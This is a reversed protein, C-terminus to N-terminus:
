SAAHLVAIAVVPIALNDLGRGLLAEAGTTALAALLATLALRGAPEHGFALSASLAVIFAVAFFTASGASSKCAGGPLCRPRGWRLGAVAAASDALALILIAVCYHAPRASALVFALCVGCAFWSEGRSAERREGLAGAFLPQWVGPMRLAEFWAVSACALAVVPAASTFIWPFALTVAGMEVHLLKRAAEPALRREATLAALIAMSAVLVGGIAAAAIWENM